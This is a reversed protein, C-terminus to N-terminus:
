FAGTGHGLRRRAEERDNRCSAIAWQVCEPLDETHRQFKRIKNLNVPLHDDQFQWERVIERETWKM